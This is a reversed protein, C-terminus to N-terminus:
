PRERLRDLWGGLAGAWRHHRRSMLERQSERELSLEQSLEQARRFWQTRELRLHDAALEARLQAEALHALARMASADGPPAVPGLGTLLEVLRAAHDRADHRSRALDHGLAGLETRFDELDEPRPRRPGAGPALGAFGDAELEPYSDETVWGNSGAHDHVYAARGCAMAEVMSRGYGVVIDAARMASAPEPTPEPEGIRRWELGAGAWAHEIQSGRGAPASHYNGM